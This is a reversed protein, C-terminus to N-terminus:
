GLKRMLEEVLQNHGLKLNIGDFQGKVPASKLNRKGGVPLGKNLKGNSIIKETKSSSNYRKLINDGYLSFLAQKVSLNSEEGDVWVQKVKNWDPKLGIKELKPGLTSKLENMENNFQVKVSQVEQLDTQKEYQALKNELQQIRSDYLPNPRFQKNAAKFNDMLEAYFEPNDEKLIEVVHNWQALHALEQQSKQIHKYKNEVDTISRELEATTEKQFRQFEKKEAALIQTKKTFGAKLDRELKKLRETEKATVEEDEGEEEELEAAADEEEEGEEEGEPETQSDEIDEDEGPLEEGEEETMLELAKSPDKISKKVPAKAKTQNGSELKVGAAELDQQSIGLSQLEKATMDTTNSGEGLFGGQSNDTEAEAAPPGFPPM